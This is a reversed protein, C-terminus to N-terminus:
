FASELSLLRRTIRKALEEPLNMVLDEQSGSIQESLVLHGTELEYVWASLLAGTQNIAVSGTLLHSPADEHMSLLTNELDVYAQDGRNRFSMEKVSTVPLGAMDLETELMLAVVYGADAEMGESAMEVDRSFVQFDFLMLERVPASSEFQGQARIKARRADLYLDILAPDELSPLLLALPPEVQLLHELTKEAAVSDGAMIQNRALYRLGQRRQAPTGAPELFLRLAEDAEKLAGRYYAEIGLALAVEVEAGQPGPDPAKPASFGGALTGLGVLGAMGAVLGVAIARGYRPGSTGIAQDSALPLDVFPDAGKAPGAAFLELSRSLGKAKREGKAVVRFENRNRIGEAAFSSLLVQGPAALGQIRSATNVGDGYVDGDAAETIEGVHIGIRLAGGVDRALTGGHFADRVALAAEVARGASEFVSLVADGVFKVVRGGRESVERRTVAQLESVLDLAAVEDKESLATYGVIDAFWVAALRRSAEEPM